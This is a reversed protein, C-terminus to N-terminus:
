PIIIEIITNEKDIGISPSAKEATQGADSKNSANEKKGNKILASPNGVSDTEKGNESEIIKNGDKNTETM